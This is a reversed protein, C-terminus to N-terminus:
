GLVKYKSEVKQSKKQVGQGSQPGLVADKKLGSSGGAGGPGKGKNHNNSKQQSKKNSLKIETEARRILVPHSGIYKGNMDKAAQFYDDADSFSVFGFGKSKTTRKDRVVRAKQVSAYKSFAKLLSDDTVEGALNGIFLRHHNGWELLTSDEWKQGGGQRVVTKRSDIPAPPTSAAPTPTSGDLRNYKLPLANANGTQKAQGNANKSDNGANGYNAQWQQMQAQYEADPNDYSSYQGTAGYSSYDGTPYSQQGYYQSQDYGGAQLPQQAAYSQNFDGYGQYAGTNMQQANQQYPHPQSQQTAVPRHSPNSSVNRPKFAFGSNQSQPPKAPLGHAGSPTSSGSAPRDTSGSQKSM